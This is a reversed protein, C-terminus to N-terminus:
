VVVSHVCDKVTFRLPAITITRGAPTGNDNRRRDRNDIRRAYLSHPGAAGPDWHVNLKNVRITHIESRECQAQSQFAIDM